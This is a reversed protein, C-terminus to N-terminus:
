YKKAIIGLIWKTPLFRNAFVLLKNKFGFVVVPKPNRKNSLTYLKKAITKSSAGRQQEDFEYKGIAKQLRYRYAKDDNENKKRNETFETKVDGLLVATVKIKFPKVETRLACSYNMVAAKSASYFSQFHMPFLAGLSSINIIRGSRRNRMHPLVAACCNALGVFNVNIQKQIDDMTTGEASGSIGFGANNILVDIQGEQEIIEDIAAKIEAPKTIDTKIFKFSDDEQRTRSLNYVIDAYLNFHQAAAAGIGKSAGTIVVVRKQWQSSSVLRGDSMADEVVEDPLYTGLPAVRYPAPEDIEIVEVVPEGEVPQESVGVIPEDKPELTTM